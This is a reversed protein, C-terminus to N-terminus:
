GFVIGEVPDFAGHDPLPADITCVVGGPRFEIRVEGDLDQALSREILRTGFGRRGPVAVAPGGFEEWVLQLRRAGAKALRWRITVRGTESSLAGYKSANTALEQLAMALALAMRPPLWVLPGEVLFFATGDAGVYPSVAGDVIERLSAGEWNERTLVDHVRSLAMLRAEFAERASASTVDGRFTQAAISQVTALTNKVRHNLENVLLRLHLESRKRATIDMAVGITRVQGPGRVEIEARLLLWHRSGDQWQVELEAEAFREGRGITDRVIGQMREMEGPAYRTRIEDLTPEADEPYGLLRNLEPSSSVFNRSTDSEWVAMQGAGLSLRLRQESERLAAEARDRDETRRGLDASAQGLAQGIANVERLVTRTPRVVGAGGIGAAADALSRLSRAIQRGCWGAVLSSVALAAAGLGVLWALSQRLPAEVIAVPAGVAIRWDSLASRAFGSLVPVGDLTLGTWTGERGSTNAQLDATAAQGVYRAHDRSRAVIRGGRDVVAGVWGPPLLSSQLVKALREPDLAINILGTVEGNRLIPANISVIPRGATAGVFLDSVYPKGTELARRDGEPLSVPLPVGLPLRTNVLQQGSQDKVVVEVSLIRKVELAQAHLTEYDGLDISRYTTMVQLARELGGLERDIETAIQRAIDLAADRQGAREGAAIRALLIGAFVIVPILFAAVLVILFTQTSFARSSPPATEVPV